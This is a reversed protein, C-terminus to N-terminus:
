VNTKRCVALLGYTLDCDDETIIGEFNNASLVNYWDKRQRIGNVLLDQGYLKIQQFFQNLLLEFEMKSLEHLHFPNDDVSVTANPCGIIAIGKDDIVRAIESIFKQQKEKSIHELVDFSIVADFSADKFKLELSDMQEYHCNTTEFNKKSFEIAEKSIDIGTISKIGNEALYHTGYGSGCGDDLCNIKQLQPMVWEYRQVHAFTSFDRAKKADQWNKVLLREGHNSVKASESLRLSNNIASIPYRFARRPNAIAYHIADITHKVKQLM